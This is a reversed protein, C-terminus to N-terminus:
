PPPSSLIRHRCMDCQGCPISVGNVEVPTWCSWSLALLPAYGGRTAIALMEKKNLHIIPFRALGFICACKYKDPLADALRCNRGRGVVFNKISDGLGDADVGCIELPESFYYATQLSREYQNVKRTFWGLKSYLYSACQSIEANPKVHKNVYFTPFLLQSADPYISELARRIKKMARVESKKNKRRIRGLKNKDDDVDDMGLYIPQVRHGATVLQCIRFTSDYGGTWCVYHTDTHIDRRYHKPDLTRKFTSYTKFRELCTISIIIFIIVFMSINLFLFRRTM